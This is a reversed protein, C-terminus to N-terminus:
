VDFNGVEIGTLNAEYDQSSRFHDVNEPRGSFSLLPGCKGFEFLFYEITTKFSM